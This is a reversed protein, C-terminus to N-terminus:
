RVRNQLDTKIINKDIGM